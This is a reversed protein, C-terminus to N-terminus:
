APDHEAEKVEGSGAKMLLIGVVLTFLGCAKMLSLTEDFLQVSFVTILM